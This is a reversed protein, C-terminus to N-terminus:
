YLLQGPLRFETEPSAGAAMAQMSRPAAVNPRNREVGEDKDGPPYLVDSLPHGEFLYSYEHHPVSM